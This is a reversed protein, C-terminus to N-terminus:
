RRSCQVSSCNVSRMYICHMPSSLPPRPLPPAHDDRVYGPGGMCFAKGALDLFPRDQLRGIGRSGVFHLRDARLRQAFKILREINIYTDDDAKFVWDFKDMMSAAKTLMAINRRVPPYETDPVDMTELQVRGIQLSELRNSITEAMDQAVFFRLDVNPPLHQAWTSMIGPIRTVATKLSTPIVILIRTENHQTETDRKKAEGGAPVVNRYAEQMSKQVAVTVVEEVSEAAAALDDKNPMPQQLSMSTSTSGASVIRSVPASGDSAIKFRYDNDYLALDWGMRKARDVMNLNNRKGIESDTCDAIALPQTVILVDKRELLGWLWDFPIAPFEDLKDQMLKLRETNYLVAFSGLTSSPWPHTFTEGAAHLKDVTAVFDRQVKRDGWASWGLLM